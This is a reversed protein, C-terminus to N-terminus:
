FAYLTPLFLISPQLFTFPENEVYCSYTSQSMVCNRWLSGLLRILLRWRRAFVSFILFLPVRFIADHKEFNRKCYAPWACWKHTRECQWDFRSLWFLHLFMNKSFYLRSTLLFRVSPSFVTAGSLSSHLHFIRQCLHLLRGSVTTPPTAAPSKFFRLQTM